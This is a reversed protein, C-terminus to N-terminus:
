YRRTVVFLALARLPEAQASFPELHQIAQHALMHSQARAREPGLISVFTAKGASEDKHTRKGTEEASGEVDLLDDAIQFALGLDHAYARLAHRHSDAAKGLIAGAECSVAILAGTKLRQLRTIEAIELKWQAALLDLMQGGVMGEGGSARAVEVVLDARVRPDAHTAPEALVEFARAILADGALIATAEDFKVHCTPMGRRLDDNDMAPLDDHILSYSHIMEIAAAVRLALGHSVGFLDASSRVLFPRIRKGGSLTSYRVAEM